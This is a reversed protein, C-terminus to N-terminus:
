RAYEGVAYRRAPLDLEWLPREVLAVELPPVEGQRSGKKKTTPESLLPVMGLIPQYQYTHWWKPKGDGKDAEEGNAAQNLRLRQLEGGDTDDDDDEFASSAGVSKQDDADGDVVDLDM